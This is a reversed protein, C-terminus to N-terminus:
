QRGKRVAAAPHSGEYPVARLVRTSTAGFVNPNRAPVEVIEWQQGCARCFMERDGYVMSGVHDHTSFVPGRQPFMESAM